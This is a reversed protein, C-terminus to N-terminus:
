LGAMGFMLDNLCAQMRVIAAQARTKMRMGITHQDSDWERPTLAALADM